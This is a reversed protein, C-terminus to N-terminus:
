GQETSRTPSHVLGGFRLERKTRAALRISAPPGFLLPPRKDGCIPVAGAPLEIEANPAPILKNEDSPFCPSPIERAPGFVSNRSMLPAAKQFCPLPEDGLM